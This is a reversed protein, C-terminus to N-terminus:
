SGSAMFHASFAFQQPSPRHAERHEGHPYLGDHNGTRFKQLRSFMHHLLLKMRCELSLIVSPVRLEGKKSRPGTGGYYRYSVDISKAAETPQLSSLM